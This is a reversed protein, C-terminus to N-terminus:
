WDGQIKISRDAHFGVNAFMNDGRQAVGLLEITVDKNLRIKKGRVMAFNFPTDNGTNVKSVVGTVNKLTAYRITLKMNDGIFVGLGQKININLM